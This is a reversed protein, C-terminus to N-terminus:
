NKGYFYDRAAKLGGFEKYPNAKVDQQHRVISDEIRQEDSKPPHYPKMAKLRAEYTRKKTIKDGESNKNSNRIKYTKYDKIRQPLQEIDHNSRAYEAQAVEKQQVKHLKDLLQASKSGKKPVPFEAQLKYENGDIDEKELDIDHVKKKKFYEPEGYKGKIYSETDEDLLEEVISIIEDFCEESVNLQELSGFIDM